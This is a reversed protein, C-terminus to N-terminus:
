QEGCGRVVPGGLTGEECGMCWATFSVFRSSAPGWLLWSTVVGGLCHDPMPASRTILGPQNRAWSVDARGEWSGSRRKGLLAFHPCLHSPFTLWFAALALLVGACGPRTASDLQAGTTNRRPGKERRPGRPRGAQKLVEQNEMEPFGPHTVLLDSNDFCHYMSVPARPGTSVSAASPIRYSTASQSRSPPNPLLAVSDGHHQRAM